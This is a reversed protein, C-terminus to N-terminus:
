PANLQNKFYQWLAQILMLFVGSIVIPEIRDWIRKLIKDTTSLPKPPTYTEPGMKIAQIKESSEKVFKRSNDRLIRASQLDQLTRQERQQNQEIMMQIVLKHTEDESEGMQNILESHKQRIDNLNDELRLVNSEAMEADLEGRRMQGNLIQVTLLSLRNEFQIQENEINAIRARINRLPDFQEDKSKRQQTNPEKM